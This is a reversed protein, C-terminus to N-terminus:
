TITPKKIVKTVTGCILFEVDDPHLVIPPFDVTSESSLIVQQNLDDKVFRKINALGGTVCLVRDRNRPARRESDIIVYDGEEINSGDITAKNMSDGQAKLAFLGLKPKIIKSSVKLYGQINEQAFITAPGCNASGLIPINVLRSNDGTTPMVKRVTREEPNIEILGRKALQSLHYKIKQPHKEGFLEGIQRLSMTGLDHTNVFELLGKQLLHM